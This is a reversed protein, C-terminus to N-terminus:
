QPDCDELTYRRASVLEADPIRSGTSSRVIEPDPRVGATADDCDVQARQRRSRADASGRDHVTFTMGDVPLMWLDRFVATAIRELITM